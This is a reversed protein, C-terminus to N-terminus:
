TLPTACLSKLRIWRSSYFHNIGNQFRALGEIVSASPVLLSSTVAPLNLGLLFLGCLSCQLMDRLRTTVSTLSVSEFYGLAFSPVPLLQRGGGALFTSRLLSSPEIPFFTARRRDCVPFDGRDFLFHVPPAARFFNPFLIALFSVVIAPFLLV